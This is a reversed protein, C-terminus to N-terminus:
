YKALKRYFDKYTDEVVKQGERYCSVYGNTTNLLSINLSLFSNYNKRATEYAEVAEVLESKALVLNNEAALVIESKSEALSPYLKIVGEKVIVFEVSLELAERADCLQIRLSKLETDFINDEVTKDSLEKNLVRKFLKM